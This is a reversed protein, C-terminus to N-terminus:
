GLGSIRDTKRTFSPTGSTQSRSPAIGIWRTLFKLLTSQFRRESRHPVRIVRGVEIIKESFHLRILGEAEPQTRAFWVASVFQTRTLTRTLIRGLHNDGFDKGVMWYHTTIDQVVIDLDLM